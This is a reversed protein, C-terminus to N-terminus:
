RSTVVICGVPDGFNLGADVANAGGSFHLPSSGGSSLAQGQGVARLVTGIGLHPGLVWGDLRVRPFPDSRCCARSFLSCCGRDCTYQLLLDLWGRVWASQGTPRAAAFRSCVNRRARYSVSTGLSATVNRPPIPAPRADLLRVAHATHYLEFSRVCEQSRSLSQPATRPTWANAYLSHVTRLTGRLM